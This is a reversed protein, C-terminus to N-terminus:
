RNVVGDFEYVELGQKGCKSCEIPVKVFEGQSYIMEKSLTLSSVEWEHDCENQLCDCLLGEERIFRTGCHPCKGYHIDSFDTM